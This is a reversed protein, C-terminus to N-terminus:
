LEGELVPQDGFVARHQAVLRGAWVSAPQVLLMPTAQARDGCTATVSPYPVLLVGPALLHTWREQELVSAVVLRHHGLRWVQGPRVEIRTTEDDDVDPGVLRALLEGKASEVEDDDATQARLWAIDDDGFATPGLYDTGELTELMRLLADDQWGGAEQTRNVALLAGAAELDDGSAWGEVVPVLWRGTGDDVLRVGAPPEDGEAQLTRLAEIRGHGSVVRRTRSDLVVQDVLGFRSLSAMIAPLDHTRPNRPDGEVEDLLVWAIQRPEDEYPTDASM